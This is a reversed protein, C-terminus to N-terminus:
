EKVIKVTKTKGDVTAKVFYVGNVNNGLNLQYNGANVKDTLIVRGLVDTVEITAANELQVNFIGNSPNPYVIFNSTLNSFNSNLGTCTNVSQSIVANASCGAANTGTVTYSTTTTPSVAIVATTATTNWVYTNAGAATLTASSGVCIFATNSSVASVSPLANITVSTMAMGTCGNTGTSSATYTTNATPTVVISSTTAGTNWTYSTSGSATLSASNGACISNSGTISVNPAMNVTVNSVASGNCGVTNTGTVTYAATATPSVVASGGSYTYTSAGSPTITFSNGACIAGSNVSITPAANVTVNSTATNASVCGATNTGIVTYSSNATPSVSASGGQITYTSAGSPVITFTAGSCITGNNASVTPTSSVVQSLTNTSACGATSTGVVTYNTTSLPTIVISSTTAGTNWSYTSAGSATLTRTGTGCILSNGVVAVTPTSGVNIPKISPASTGCSFTASVSLNGTSSPVISITNTTSSGTWGGPLSWNYSTAGTVPAVSFIQASGACMTANNQISPTFVSVTSSTSFPTFLRADGTGQWNNANRGPVPFAITGTVDQVGQTTIRTPLSIHTGVHLEINNSTEFLKIQGNVRNPFTTAHYVVDSYTVICIRNPATGITQVTINGGNNTNLDSWALAILNSPNTLGTPLNGGSCCGNGSAANFTIFGNTSVYINTYATCMFNFTFGIPLAGSIADDGTIVPTLTGPVPTLSLTTLSQNYGCTYTTCQANMKSVGFSLLCGALLLKYIKKM